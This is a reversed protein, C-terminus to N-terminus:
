GRIDMNVYETLFYLLHLFSSYHSSSFWHLCTSISWCVIATLSIGPIGYNLCASDIILCPCWSLLFQWTLSQAEQSMQPHYWGIIYTQYYDKLNCLLCILLWIQIAFGFFLWLQEHSKRLPGTAILGGEWAPYIPEDRSSFLSGVRVAVLGTRPLANLGYAAAFVWCLQYFLLTNLFLNLLDRMCYFSSMAGILEHDEFRLNVEKFFWLIATPTLFAVRSDWLRERWCLLFFAM